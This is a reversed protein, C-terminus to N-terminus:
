KHYTINEMITFCRYIQESLILRMLQHPYTFKGFSLVFDGKGVVEPSLGYSGGIVFTIESVGSIFKKQMLGSLEDSAMEKGSKDLVIVFGKFKKLLREGEEKIQSPIDKKGSEDVEIVNLSCFRSLRKAYNLFGEKYFNESLKGVALINIKM